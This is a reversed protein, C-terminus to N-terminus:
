MRSRRSSLRSFLNVTYGLRVIRSQSTFVRFSPARHSVVQAFEPQPLEKEFGCECRIRTTLRRLLDAILPSETVHALVAPHDVLVLVDHAIPEAAAGGGDAQIADRCPHRLVLSPALVVIRFHEGEELLRQAM